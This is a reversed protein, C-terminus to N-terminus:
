RSEPAIGYLMIEEQRYNDAPVTKLTWVSFREADPNDTEIMRSFYLMSVMSDLPHDEDVASVPVRLIYQYDCIMQDLVIDQYHDLLQPLALGFM